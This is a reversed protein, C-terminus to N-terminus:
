NLGPVNTVVYSTGTAINLTSTGTGAARTLAYDTNGDGNFDGNLLATIGNAAYYPIPITTTASRCSLLVENTEPGQFRFDACGDGDVDGADTMYEKVDGNSYVPTTVVTFAPGSPTTQNIATSLLGTTYSYGSFDALGDGNVDTNIGGASTLVVTANTSGFQNFHGQGDNRLFCFCATPYAISVTMDALGDGDLDFFGSNPGFGYGTSLCATQNSVGAYSMTMNALTWASGNNLYLPECGGIGPPPRVYGDPDGDGDIDAGALEIGSAPPAITPMSDVVIRSSWTSATQWGFTTPAHCGSSTGTGDCRQVSTLQSFPANGLTYALKYDTVPTGSGTTNTYTKIDSLLKATSIMSGAHYLTSPDNRSQYSFFVSNYFSVSAAANGTYLIHDPYYQGQDSTYYVQMYNGVTDSIKSAAWVRAVSTGSALIRSDTSNGLEIIQGSKTHVEFWGPGGGVGSM